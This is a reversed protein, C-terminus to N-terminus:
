TVAAELLQITGLSADIEVNAGVPLVYKNKIHGIMAGSWSPIGLPQIHDKLVQALTLSSEGDKKSNENTIQDCNTCQGFVFGAIQDLVGALKLQTLMRDVRYVEEGIEEIFLITQKWSPLYNSGLMATLVSLNGGILKGQVKGPNITLIPFNSNSDPINKLTFVEGQFLTRKVYNVTFNNWSSQGTPGHFTILGTKTHLAILLSTIDSLGMIIKPNSRILSYDLLPLLRNCGWGGKMPIIAQVSSDAFMTNLDIARDRDTGALYGYRKLLNSGLKAKLGLEALVAKMDEIDKREIYGAPSILGVTDGIKLRPPKLNAQLSSNAQTSPPLQTAITALGFATLFNRRNQNM